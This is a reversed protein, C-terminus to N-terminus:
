SKKQNYWVNEQYWKKKKFWDHADPRVPTPYFQYIMKQISLIGREPFGNRKVPCWDCIASTISITSNNIVRGEFRIIKLPVVLGGDNAQFTEIVIKDGEVKYHGMETTPLRMSKLYEEPTQWFNEELIHSIRAANYSAITGDEYLFFAYPPEYWKPWIWPKLFFIGDLSPKIYAEQLPPDKYVSFHKRYSYCNSFLM